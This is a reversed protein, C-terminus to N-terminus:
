DIRQYVIFGNKNLIIRLNKFSPIDEQDDSKVIFYVKRDVEGEILWRKEIDDLESKEAETLQLYSTKHKQRYYKENLLNMGDMYKPPRVAAYFYHAYSKYGANFIYCNEEKVSKFFDIAAGQTHQEIKGTFGVSLMWVVIVNGMLLSGFTLVPKNKFLHFVFVIIVVLLVVGPVADGLGWQVDAGFNAKSFDDHILSLLWARNYAMILPFAIFASALLIGLVIISVKYYWKFVFIRHNISEISYASLFTLPLWCLSSYHVIKTRVISFLILVVWFLCQMTTRFLNEQYTYFENKRWGAIAILSIPFCGVLLVLTHYYFPQEHGAVNQSFLGIQYNIFEVLFYPGNKLTEPIFWISTVLGTFLLYIFVNSLSFFWVMRKAFVMSFLVLLGVLLAVPGKCLIAIGTYIGAMLFHRNANYSTTSINIVKYFELISLFIFFNFVPDILGTKFYFHPTIAGLYSLVWWHAIHGKFNKRATKYILCLTLIGFVVNPFRAAFENIGFVKMSLVQMWIFLPPKEWFAQYNIQVQSYNGTMIMERASEAFNIEDWDFLHVSGLYPLFLVGSILVILFYHIPNINSKM